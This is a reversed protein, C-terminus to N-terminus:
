VMSLEVCQWKGDIGELRAVVALHRQSCRVVACVEAVGDAPESVHVSQICHATSEVVFQGPKEMLALILAFVPATTWQRLQAVPRRGTSAEIVGQLLRQAWQKPDCLDSRSTPQPDFYDIDFTFQRAAPESFPLEDALTSVLHLQASPVEDDYPPENQPPHRLLTPLPVTRLRPWSQDGFDSHEIPVRAPATM